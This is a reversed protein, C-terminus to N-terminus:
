EVPSLSLRPERGPHQRYYFGARCYESDQKSKHEIHPAPGHPVHKGHLKVAGHCDKCRFETAGDELAKKVPMEVWEFKKDGNRKFLKKVQCHYIKEQMLGGKV